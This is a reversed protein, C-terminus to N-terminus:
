KYHKSWLETQVPSYLQLYNVTQYNPYFEIPLEIKGIIFGSCEINLRATGIDIDIKTIHYTIERTDLNFPEGLQNKFNFLPDEPIEYKTMGNGEDTIKIKNSM